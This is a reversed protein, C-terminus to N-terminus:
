CRLWTHRPNWRQLHQNPQFIQRLWHNLQIIKNPPFDAYKIPFILDKPQTLSAHTTKPLHPNKKHQTPITSTYPCYLNCPHKKPIDSKLSSQNIINIHTRKRLICMFHDSHLNGLYTLVLLMLDTVKTYLIINSHVHTIAHYSLTSPQSDNWLSM